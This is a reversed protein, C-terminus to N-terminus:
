NYSLGYDTKGFGCAIASNGLPNEEIELCAPRVNGNLNLPEDLKLLGIDHYKSPYSYEPHKIWETVYRDQYSSDPEEM